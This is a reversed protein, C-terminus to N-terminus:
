EETEKHSYAGSGKILDIISSYKDAASVVYGELSDPAKGPEIPWMHRRIVEETKESLDPFLKRAVEASDDPHKQYCEGNSAYKEDRGIMGLDHCLAGVVISELDVPIHLRHLLYSIRLSARTVRYTHDGLTSRLHHRQKFAEKMLDSDLVDGGYRKVDERIRQRAPSLHKNKKRKPGDTKM